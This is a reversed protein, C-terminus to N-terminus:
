DLQCLIANIEADYQEERIKKYIVMSSEKFRFKDGNYRTFLDRNAKYYQKLQKKDIPQYNFSKKCAEVEAAFDLRFRTLEYDLYVPVTFQKLGYVVEGAHLARQRKENEANCRVKVADLSSDDILGLRKALILSARAYREEDKSTFCFTNMIIRM